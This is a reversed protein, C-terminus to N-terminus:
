SRNTDSAPPIRFDELSQAWWPPFKIIIRTESELQNKATSNLRCLWNYTETSILVGLLTAFHDHLTCYSNKKAIVWTNRHNRIIKDTHVRANPNSTDCLTIALLLRNTTIRLWQKVRLLYAKTITAPFLSRDADYRCIFRIFWVPVPKNRTNRTHM